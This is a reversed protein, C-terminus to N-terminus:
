GLLAKAIVMRQIESSGEGIECLKADRFYREVEAEKMFGLGGHIQLAHNTARMALESAFLKAESAALHFCKNQDKLLAARYVLLRAAELDTSMDALKSQIAQFASLPKGFQQRVGAYRISTELAGRALGIAMAGIGIRGGDLIQLADQFGHHLRGILHEGSLRLKDFHLAATDSARVGLKNEVKGIVLGPTDREVVFASIGKAEKNPDTKALIVYIDATSGQTIFQKAGNIIWDGNEMVATTQMAAADSGSEPETLAWAGLCEGKALPMVYHKKQDENGFRYLHSLCLANHSAVILATAGDIRAIEELIVATEMAGMGGGGLAEPIAIGFLKLAAMKPILDHPFAAAEDRAMAGPAIEQLAFDRLMQRLLQQAETPEFSIM